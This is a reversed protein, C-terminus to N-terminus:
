TLTRGTCYYEVLSSSLYLHGFSLCSYKCNKTTILEYALPLYFRAEFEGMSILNYYRHWIINAALRMRIIQRYFLEQSGDLGTISSHFNEGSHKFDSTVLSKSRKGSTYETIASATNSKAVAVSAASAGKVSLGRM